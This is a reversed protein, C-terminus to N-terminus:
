RRQATVSVTSQAPVDVRVSLVTFQGDDSTATSEITGRDVTYAGAPLVFQVRAKLFAQKWENDITATSGTYAVRLPANPATRAMPIPATAHGAYTFSVPKCGDFRVVRFSASNEKGARQTPTKGMTMVRQGEGHADHLYPIRFRDLLDVPADSEFANIIKCTSEPRSALLARAATLDGHWTPTHNLISLQPGLDTISVPQGYWEEHGSVRHNGFTILYPMQLRSLAGAAYAANVENSVLVMDPAILNSVEALRELYEAQEQGWTDLHGFTVFTPNNPFSSVVQVARASFRKRDGISVVLDYLGPPTDPAVTLTGEARGDHERAVNEVWALPRSIFAPGARRELRVTVARAGEKGFRATFPEGPKVIAPRSPHPYEVGSVTSDPRRRLYAPPLVTEKGSAVSVGAFRHSEWGAAQIEVAYGAGAPLGSMRCQGTMWNRVLQSRVVRGNQTVIARVDTLFRNAEGHVLFSLEGEGGALVRFGEIRVGTASSVADRRHVIRARHPGDTLDRAVLVDRDETVPRIDVAAGGDISVHLLGLNEQGLNAFPLGHGALVVVLARGEFSVELAASDETTALFGASAGRYAQEVWRGAVRQVRAQDSAPIFSTDAAALSLPLALVATL